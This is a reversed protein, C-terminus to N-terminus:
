STCIFIYTKSKSRFDMKLPANTNLNM